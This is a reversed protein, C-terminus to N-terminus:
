LLPGMAGITAPSAENGELDLVQVTSPDQAGAAHIVRVAFANQGAVGAAFGAAAKCVVAHSAAKLQNAATAEEGETPTLTVM